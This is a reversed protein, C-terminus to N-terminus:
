FFQSAPQTVTDTSFIIKLLKKTGTDSKNVAQKLYFSFFFGVHM